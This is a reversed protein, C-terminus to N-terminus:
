VEDKNEYEDGKLIKEIESYKESKQVSYHNIKENDRVMRGVVYFSWKDTIGYFRTCTSLAVVKDSSNVDLDYKYLNYESLKELYQNM